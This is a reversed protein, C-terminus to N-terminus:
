IGRRAVIAARVDGHSVADHYSQWDSSMQETMRDLLKATLESAAQDYVADYVKQSIAPALAYWDPPTRRARFL